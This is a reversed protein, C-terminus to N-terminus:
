KCIEKLEEYRRQALSKLYPDALYELLYKFREKQNGFDTRVDEGNKARQYLGILRKIEQTAVKGIVSSLFFSNGLLEIINAGLTGEVGNANEGLCLVNSHPIDSLIFPSHTALMINIGRLNRFKANQLAQHLLGMFSRQMEPHFYLEVEDFIVNVYRYKIVEWHAFDHYYDNWESDVNVLHYMFNSITYAIQREGSSLNRFDIVGEQGDKKMLLTVDFIPPPLLDIEQLRYRPHLEEGTLQEISEDLDALNYYNSADVYIDKKVYMITRLLKKTIHTYDEALSQLRNCFEDYTSAKKSLYNYVPHYKRYNSIIKLTKYVIYDCADQDLKQGTLCVKFNYRSDWFDLIWQYIDDFHLSINQQKGIGIYQLMKDRAFKRNTTPCIHLAIIHLNGNIVRQPYNGAADKYFLLNCMREKALLNEKTINLRGDQRMPHLVIPTQYGDNKHFIGKLWLHDEVLEDTKLEGKKKYLKLLREVPTAEKFYDRYNFGYLSYNCVLTYFLSKLIVRGKKHKKLLRTTTELTTPESLLEEEQVKMFRYGSARNRMYKHLVIRRGREELVYIANGIRFVLEAYVYDIFHLHKAAAFNFKEGLLVASLNNIMRILLDVTSSKGSGNKGVIACVSVKMGDIDYFSFDRLAELSVEIYSGDDAVSYGKYFYLWENKGWLAKQIAEAKDAYIPNGDGVSPMLSRIGIINFHNM